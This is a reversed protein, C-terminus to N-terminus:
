LWQYSLVKELKVTSGSKMVLQSAPCSVDFKQICDIMIERIKQNSGLSLYDLRTLDLKKKGNVKVYKGYLGNETITQPNVINVRSGKVIYDEIEKLFIKM